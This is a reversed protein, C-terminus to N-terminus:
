EVLQSPSDGYEGENILFGLQKQTDEYDKVPLRFEEFIRDTIEQINKRDWYLDLIREHMPGTWVILPNAISM